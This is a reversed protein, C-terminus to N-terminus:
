QPNFEGTSRVVVSLLPIELPGTENSLVPLSLDQVVTHLEVAIPGITLCSFVRSPLEIKQLSETLSNSTCFDNQSFKSKNSLTNGILDILTAALVNLHM